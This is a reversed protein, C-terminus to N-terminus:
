EGQITKLENLVDQLFAPRDFPNSLEFAKKMIYQTILYKDLILPKFLVPYAGYGKCYTMLESEYAIYFIRMATELYKGTLTTRFSVEDIWKKTKKLHISFPTTGLDLITRAILALRLGLISNSYPNIWLTDQILSFISQDYDIINNIIMNFDEPITSNNETYFKYVSKEELFNMCDDLPIDQYKIDDDLTVDIDGFNFINNADRLNLIMDYIYANNSYKYIYDFTQIFLDTEIGTMYKYKEFERLYVTEIYGVLPTEKKEYITGLNLMKNNENFVIDLTKTIQLIEKYISNDIHGYYLRTYKDDLLNQELFSFYKGLSTHKLSVHDSSLNKYCVIKFFDEDFVVYRAMYFLYLLKFYKKKEEDKNPENIGWAKLKNCISADKDARFLLEYIQSYGRPNDKLKVYIQKNLYIPNDDNDNHKLKISDTTYLIDNIVQMKNLIENVLDKRDLSVNLANGIDYPSSLEYRDFIM